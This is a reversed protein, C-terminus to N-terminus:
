HLPRINKGSITLLVPDKEVEGQQDFSLEGTVGYFIDQQSIKEQFDKRTRIMGKAVLSKVFRITDYGSAALIGPKSEFNEKYLEVFGKVPDSTSEIFFGSPFIAGQVYDGANEILESSQWLSTGFFNVNFISHFPFQPAILAVQQYNDPIFVADFDVIPDPGEDDEERAETQTFPAFVRSTEAEFEKMEKLMQVLSEPRPYHLGVMKKIQVAFDTEDPQYFEVATITGGMEELKDWFLNMFVRGYSNDPYLIAFRDLEMGIVAEDLLTEIEKSPILFNRFVMDGETTIGDKQSLTIIPIGLEQAKRSAAMAPRGALPGIIAMVKERNALDEVGLVADEIRGRTDRIILELHRGEESRNFLDMGLQIGNLAEQGYIAFAGSLPLLCGIIGERIAFQDEIRELIKRGITVWHQEPTSRVLAMAADRARGLNNKELYITTMRHYIHPAYVHVTGYKEILELEELGSRKILGIIRNNIDERRDPLGYGTLDSELSRLWWQFAKPNDGLASFNKGISFLVEGRLQNNSYKQLWDFAEINSNNYDGLRYYSSLIDYKVNPMDPHGPYEETIRQFGALARQYLHNDYNIKAIRYLANRPKEGRPHQELYQKYKKIAADHNGEKFDLEARAFLDPATEKPLPPGELVIKPYCSLLFFATGVALTSVAKRMLCLRNRM